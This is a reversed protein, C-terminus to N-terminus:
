RRSFIFKGHNEDGKTNVLYQIDNIEPTQQARKQVGDIIYDYFLRDATFNNAKMGKLGSILAGGFVSHGADGGDDVPELGGSAILTLSKREMLRILADAPEDMSPATGRGRTLGGAFCSDSIILIHRSKNLTLSEFIMESGIWQNRNTPDADVPQWYTKKIESLRVGHGAYYVLFSSDETAQREFFQLADMIQGKTADKLVKVEFGYREKLLSAIEKADNISNELAGLHQYNDNGIVLAFRKHNKWTERLMKDTESVAVVSEPPAITPPNVVAPLERRGFYRDTLLTKSLFNQDMESPQRTRNRERLALYDLARQSYNYFGDPAFNVWGGDGPLFISSILSGKALSWLNVVGDTGTSILNRGDPSTVLSTVVGRHENLIKNSLGSTVDWVRISNDYSGSVVSQGDPTFKVTAVRDNHGRMIKLLTGTRADWVRVDEDFSASAIKNGFPDYTVSNVGQTHGKLVKRLTGKQVDWIRVDKCDDGSVLSKGDPSFAVSHIIFFPDGAFSFAVNRLLSATEKYMCPVSLTRLLNWNRADFIQIALGEPRSIGQEDPVKNYILGAAAVKNGDASVTISECDLNTKKGDNINKILRNESLSWINIGESGCSLLFKEDPTFVTENIRFSNDAKGWAFSNRLSGSPLDWVYIGDLFSFATPNNSSIGSWAIMQGSNSISGGTTYHPKKFQKGFSQLLQGSNSDLVQLQDYELRVVTSGDNSMAGGYLNKVSKLLRGTAVDYINGGVFVWSWDSSFHMNTAYSGTAIRYRETHSIVDWFIIKETGASAITKGDPSFSPDDFSDTSLSWLADANTLSWVKISKDISGSVIRSGTQDFAVGTVQERHGRFTNLLRGSNVDWLRITNDSVGSVDGYAGGGSALLSGDPSFSICEVPATHGVFSKELETTQVNWIRVIGDDGGSAILLGDPSFTLAKVSGNHAKVTNMLLATNRNWFKIAGDDGGTVITRNDPGITGILNGYGNHGTQLVPRVEQAFTAFNLFALAIMALISLGVVLQRNYSHPFLRM